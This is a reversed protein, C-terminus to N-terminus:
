EYVILVNCAAVSITLTLGINFALNKFDLDIPETKAPLPGSSWKIEGSNTVNDYLTVVSTSVMSSIIMGHLIGPGYKLVNGVTVGVQYKSRPQTLLPGLRSISMVRCYLVHNTDLGSSNVNDMGVYMTMTNAWTTTLASVTHLIEDGIVFWVKSNTWYIEYTKANTDVEITSGLQGNFNGNTVKTESGGKITSIEFTTGELSFFAGDTITPMTAGWGIGWRRRNNAVGLDGLQIVARFRMSNGASYRAAASSAAITSGNPTTNTALTIQAGGQSTTGGNANTVVVFNSDVTSGTFNTGVLKTIAATRIEGIPTNEAHFGYNDNIHAEIKLRGDETLSRPVAEVMPCLALQLRFFTTASSGLNVVRLRVYSNVAQVTWGDGGLSHLYNFEDMIDWNIGDPSQDVTIHCNQDTKISVQLGVVGLTSTSIGTFTDGTSDAAELNVDSSNNPDAVVDQKIHKFYSM